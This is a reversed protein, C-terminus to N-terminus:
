LCSLPAPGRPCNATCGAMACNMKSLAGQSNHVGKFVSKDFCFLLNGQWLNRSFDAEYGAYVAATAYFNDDLSRM